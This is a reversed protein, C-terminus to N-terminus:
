ALVGELDFARGDVFRAIEVDDIEIGGAGDAPDRGAGRMGRQECVKTGATDAAADPEVALSAHVNRVELLVVHEDDRRALGVRLDIKVGVIEIM